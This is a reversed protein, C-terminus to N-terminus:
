ACPSASSAAGDGRMLMPTGTKPPEMWHRMDHVLSYYEGGTPRALAGIRPRGPSVDYLTLRLWLQPLRRTILTDAVLEIKVQRGDAIHGTVVPYHDPGIARRADGLLGAAEDLLGHRAAMAERNDRIGRVVLWACLAISLILLALSVTM